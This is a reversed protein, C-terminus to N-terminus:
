RARRIFSIGGWPGYLRRQCSFLQEAWARVM